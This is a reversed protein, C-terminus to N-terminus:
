ENFIDPVCPFGNGHCSAIKTCYPLKCEEEDKIYNKESKCELIYAIGKLGVCFEDPKCKKM